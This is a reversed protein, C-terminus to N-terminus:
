FRRGLQIGFRPYIFNPIFFFNNNPSFSRGLGYHVEALWGKKSSFKYGVAGGVGFDSSNEATLGIGFGLNTELFLGDHSKKGFYVRHYPTFLTSNSDFLFGFYTASLGVSTEESLFREYTLEPAKLVLTFLNYKLEGKYAEEPMKLEDNNQSVALNALILFIFGLAFQIFKM